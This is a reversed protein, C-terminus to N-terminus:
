YYWGISGKDEWILALSKMSPIQKVAIEWLELAFNGFNRFISRCDPCTMQIKDLSFSLLMTLSIELFFPWKGRFCKTTSAVSFGNQMIWFIRKPISELQTVAATFESTVIASSLGHLFDSLCFGVYLGGLLTRHEM